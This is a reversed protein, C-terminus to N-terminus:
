KREHRTFNAVSLQRSVRMNLKGDIGTVHVLGGLVEEMNNGAYSFEPFRIRVNNQNDVDLGIRELTVEELHRSVRALQAIFGLWGNSSPMIFTTGYLHLQRMTASFKRIIALLDNTHIYVSVLMLEYLNTFTPSIPPELERPGDYQESSAQGSLWAFFDDRHGDVDLLNLHKIQPARLLFKRMYYSRIKHIQKQENSYVMVLEQVHSFRLYITELSALVPSVAKEMFSPLNFADDSLCLDTFDIELQRPKTGSKALAYLVNQVCSANSIRVITQSWQADDDGIVADSLDGYYHPYGISQIRVTRLHGLNCFAEVLM